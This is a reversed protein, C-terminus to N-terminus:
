QEICSKQCEGISSFPINPGDGYYIDKTQCSSKKSDYYYAKTTNYISKDVGPRSIDVGVFDPIWLCGLPRVPKIFSMSDQLQKVMSDTIYYTPTQSINTNYNIKHVSYTFGDNERGGLYQALPIVHISVNFYHKGNNYFELQYDSWRSGGCGDIESSDCKRIYERYDAQIDHEKVTLSWEQPYKIEFGFKDNKYQTTLQSEISPDDTKIIDNDIAPQSPMLTAKVLQQKLQYNQYGFYSTIGVLLIIVVITLWSCRKTSQLEIPAIEPTQTAQTSSQNEAQQNDEM